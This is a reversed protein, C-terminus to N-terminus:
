GRIPIHDSARSGMWIDPRPSIRQSRVGDRYSGSNEYLGNFRYTLTKSENLPGGIDITPRYLDYNGIIMEAAYYPTKLPAKTIQNIVGGPDSRGFLYSPPGKIVEITELNIIDRQARSSFTSDDRFGNKFVNLDSAFGRIMFSGAQGGQTSFQSVGSVNRLVDSFRIAKQDEIVQRTVVEVSRPTDHVPVPIRTASSVEDVTYATNKRERTEKVVIEPVKIPQQRSAAISEDVPEPSPAGSMTSSSVLMVSNTGTMRYTLGTGALLAHLANEPTHNGSISSSTLGAVLETPVSVQWGTTEAYANLATGLPQASINFPLSSSQAELAASGQAFIDTTSMLALVLFMLGRGLTQRWVNYRQDNGYGYRSIHTHKGWGAQKM